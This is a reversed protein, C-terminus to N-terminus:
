IAAQAQYCCPCLNSCLYLQGQIRGQCRHHHTAAGATCTQRPLSWSPRRRATDLLRFHMLVIGVHIINNAGICVYTHIANVCVGPPSVNPPSADLVRPPALPNLYVPRLLTNITEPMQMYGAWQPDQYTAHLQERVKTLVVEIPEKSAVLKSALAKMWIGGDEGNEHAKYRPMTAYAVLTNGEPPVLVTKIDNAGRGLVERENQSVRGGSRPVMVPKIDNSGRCADFFFLKPINGINPARHPLLSNIIEQIPVTGGDQLYIARTELGHGAFVFSISEYTKSPVIGSVEKLIKRLEGCGVNHKCYTAIQLRNFAERMRDGDKKPGKLTSLKTSAEYGNTVIIALGRKSPNQRVLEGVSQPSAVATAM